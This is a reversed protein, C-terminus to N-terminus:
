EFRLQFATITRGFVDNPLYCYPNAAVPAGRCNRHEDLWGYGAEKMCAVILEEVRPADDGGRVTGAELECALAQVQQAKFFSIGGGALIIELVGLIAAGVILAAIAQGASSVFRVDVFYLVGGAVLAGGVVLAFPVAFLALDQIV